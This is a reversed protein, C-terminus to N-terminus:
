NERILVSRLIGRFNSSAFIERKVTYRKEQSNIFALSFMLQLETDSSSLFLLDDAVTPCGMYLDGIYKGLARSELDLLFDNLYTKYFHSSLIGGQRVDQLVCFSQSVEGEWKVRASLGSYMSRILQWLHSNIGQLHLMKM